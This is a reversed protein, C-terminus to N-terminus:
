MNHGRAIMQLFVKVLKPNLATGSEKSMIDVITQHALPERYPRRSRLADYIDAVSIMQSVIHPKWNDGLEPYGKGDFRIHHELAALVTLKPLKKQKAIYQAGLLPHSRMIRLEEDNLQGPKNLVEDPILMKGVDHMLAAFTIDVLDQGEFGLSSALAMTLLAVNITHVYTYEDESKIDALYKLPNESQHFTKLLAMALDQSTEPDIQRQDRISKYLDHLDVASWHEKSVPVPRYDRLSEDINHASNTVSGIRKGFYINKQTKNIDGERDSLTGVLHLLDGENIATTFGLREIHYHKFIAMLQNGQNGVDLIPLGKCVWQDDILDISFQGEESIVAHLADLLRDIQLKTQPHDLAYLKCTNIAGVLGQIVKHIAKEDM